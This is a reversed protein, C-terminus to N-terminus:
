EFLLEAYCRKYQEIGKTLSFVKEAKQRILGPSLKILRELQQVTNELEEKQFNHIIIGGGSENVVQEVDGVGSNVIVPIGMALVEGLKTPSSALKSFVPKIFSINIDSAKTFVPVEQRNAEKIVLDAASIGYKSIRDLIMSPRSHTIFLFKAETYKKKVAAFLELMEDLMYWAGVSGLYSLVLGDGPLGLIKRGKQKDAASTLTFHDMDACCPIVNIPVNSNYSPWRMIENKGANTLSIICDAGNIFQKEKKKYHQYIKRFIYYEQNWTGAEKKEDAWFGRMDFLFKVGFKKKLLLGLGAAIYSRCHIMDYKNARYLSFTKRKMRLWDYYKAVVPPQTTFSMPEWVIGADNTIKEIVPKYKEYRDKKEFSLITFRYGEKALGCLYPLVQSQGLPDTMGDYTIYLIKKNSNM